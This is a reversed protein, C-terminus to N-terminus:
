LANERNRFPASQDFMKFIVIESGRYLGLRRRSDSSDPRANACDVRRPCLKGPYGCVGFRILVRRVFQIVVCKPSKSLTREPRVDQLHRNRGRPVIRASAPQRVLRTTRQRLRRAQPWLKGPYGCVGFRILVRRVFQIVVSKRSKSLAREPPVDQLHRNRGRPVIRASASQRVFRTTCQRLRRAQPWLKGPYGCVGFRILVRRVFQIVFGKRSKSLASEPPVDQLHRNRGRPVIRASAPQRVLRTTCQRLSRAQPWLKDPCGCWVVLAGCRGIDEARYARVLTFRHPQDQRAAVGRRHVQQHRFDRCFHRGALV